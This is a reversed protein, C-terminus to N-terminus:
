LSIQPTPSPKLLLPLGARIEIVRDCTRALKQNLSGQLDRFARGDATVPVIGQGVENSILLIHAECALLAQCLSEVHDELPHGHFLLNNLWMTMCDILIVQGPHCAQTLVDALMIEEEVCQWRPGRRLEHQRIREAMEEDHEFRPSTAVYLLEYPSQTCLSEAFASKGSKAGGLILTTRIDQATM